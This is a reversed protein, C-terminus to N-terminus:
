ICDKCDKGILGDLIKSAHKYLKGAMVYNEVDANAKVGQIFIWASQLKQVKEPSYCNECEKLGISLVAKNYKCELQCTRYFTGEFWFDDYPCVTMKITYLGDPLLTLDQAYNTLQLNSSNLITVGGQEYSLEIVRPEGSPNSYGPVIVQLTNGTTIMNPNYYSTDLITLLKCNQTNIVEFGLETQRIM